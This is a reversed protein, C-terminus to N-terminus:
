DELSKLFEEESIGLQNLIARMDEESVIPDDKTHEIEVGRVKGDVVRTITTVKAGLRHNRLMKFM